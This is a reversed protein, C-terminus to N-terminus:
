MARCYCIVTDDEDQAGGADVIAEVRIQDRIFGSTTQLLLTTQPPTVAHEAAVAGTDSRATQLPEWVGAARQGMVRVMWQSAAGYTFRFDLEQGQTRGLYPESTNQVTGLSMHTWTLDPLLEFPRTVGKVDEYTLGTPDGALGLVQGFESNDVVSNSMAGEGQLLVGAGSLVLVVVAGRRLGGSGIPLLLHM